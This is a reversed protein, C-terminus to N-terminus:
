YSYFMLPDSYVNNHECYIYEGDSDQIHIIQDM